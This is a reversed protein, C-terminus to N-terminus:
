RAFVSRIPIDAVNIVEKDNSLSQGRHLYRSRVRPTDGVYGLIAELHHRIAKKALAVVHREGVDGLVNGLGVLGLVALLELFEQV